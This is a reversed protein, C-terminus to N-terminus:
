FRKLTGGSFQIMKSGNMDFGIARCTSLWFCCLASTQRGGQELKQRSGALHHSPRSISRLQRANTPLLQTLDMSAAAARTWGRM